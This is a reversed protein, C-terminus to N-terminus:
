NNLQGVLARCLWYFRIERQKRVNTKSTSAEVFAGYDGGTDDQEVASSLLSLAPLAVAQDINDLQPSTFIADVAEIRNRVHILALALAYIQYPKALPGDHIEPWESIKAMAQMLEDEIHAAGDFTVDRSKYLSDLTRANTTTIGYFRAHVIETILKADLMRIIQKESFTGIRIFTAQLQKAAGNVFWKFPGQFQAHRKEEPNLPVTYSNMRRFVEIVEDVPAATFLDISLGYDLFREKIEPELSSFVAGRLFETELAESLVLKDDHFDLIAQTRQQGDVIHKVSKRTRTDTTQHLFLKPVPYDLVITEILYSRAM